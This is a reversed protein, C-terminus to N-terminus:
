IKLDGPICSLEFKIRESFKNTFHGLLYEDMMQRESNRKLQELDIKDNGAEEYHIDNQANHASTYQIINPDGLM